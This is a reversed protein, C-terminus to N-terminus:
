LGVGIGVGVGIVPRRLADDDARLEKMKLLCNAFAETDPEFGFEECTQRDQLSQEIERQAQAAPSQCGALMLAALAGTAITLAARRTRLVSNRM